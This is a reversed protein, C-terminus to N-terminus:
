RAVTIFSNDQTATGEIQIRVIADGDPVTEPIRVNFQYLGSATLGAFLVEATAGGITVVPTALLQVPSPM